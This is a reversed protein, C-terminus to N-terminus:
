NKTKIKRVFFAKLKPWGTNASDPQPIQSVTALQGLEVLSCTLSLPIAELTESQQTAHIFSISDQKGHGNRADGDREQRLHEGGSNLREEKSRTPYKRCNFARLEVQIM